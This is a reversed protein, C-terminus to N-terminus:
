IAKGCQDKLITNTSIVTIVELFTFYLWVCIQRKVKVLSKDATHEKDWEPTYLAAQRCFAAM